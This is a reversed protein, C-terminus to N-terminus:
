RVPRQPGTQKAHGGAAYREDERQQAFKARADAAENLQRELMQAVNILKDTQLDAKSQVTTLTTGFRMADVVREKQESIRLENQEAVMKREKSYMWFVVILMAGTIGHSLVVDVIGKTSDPAVMVPDSAARDNARAVANASFLAVIAALAIAKTTSPQKM